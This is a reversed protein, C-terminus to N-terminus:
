RLTMHHKAPHQQDTRPLRITKNRKQNIPGNTSTSPDPVPVEQALSLPLLSASTSEETSPFKRKITSQSTSIATTSSQTQQNSVTISSSPYSQLPLMKAAPPNISCTTYKSNASSTSQIQQQAETISSSPPNQNNVMGTSPPIITCTSTTSTMSQKTLNSMPKKKTNRDPNAPQPNDIYVDVDIEVPPQTPIFAEAVM